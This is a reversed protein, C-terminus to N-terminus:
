CFDGDISILFDDSMNVRQTRTCRVYNMNTTLINMKKIIRKDVSHFIHYDAIVINRQAFRTTIFQM